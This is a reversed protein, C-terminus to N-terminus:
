AISAMPAQRSTNTWFRSGSKIIWQRTPHQNILRGITGFIVTRRQVSAQLSGSLSKAMAAGLGRSSGSILVLKNM